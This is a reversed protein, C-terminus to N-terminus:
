TRIQNKRSSDGHMQSLKGVHMSPDNKEYKKLRRERRTALSPLRAKMTLIRAQRKTSNTLFLSTTQRAEAEAEAEALLCHATSRTISEPRRASGSTM